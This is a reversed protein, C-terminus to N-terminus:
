NAEKQDIAMPALLDDPVHLKSDTVDISGTPSVITVSKAVNSFLDKPYKFSLKFRLVKAGSADQGYSTDSLVVSKALPTKGMDTEVNTNVITKTLIDTATFSRAASGEITITKNGPDFTVTSMRIDNPPAPNVAAMVDFIRSSVVKGDNVKPIYKLQNQITLLDGLNNVKQLKSYEEKINRDQVVEAVKQMGLFAGFLAVIGVAGVMAIISGTVVMGRLRQARIFEQKVDPILNVEIM